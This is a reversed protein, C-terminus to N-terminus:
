EIKKAWEELAQAVPAVPPMHHSLKLEFVETPTSASPSTVSTTASPSTESTSCATLLTSVTLLMLLLVLCISAFYNLSRFKRM